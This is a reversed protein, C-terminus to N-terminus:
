TLEQLNHYGCVIQVDRNECIMYELINMCTKEDSYNCRKWLKSYRDMYNLTFLSINNNYIRLRMHSYGYHKTEAFFVEIKTINNISSLLCEEGDPVVYPIKDVTFKQRRKHKYSSKILKIGQIESIIGSVTIPIDSLEVAHIM